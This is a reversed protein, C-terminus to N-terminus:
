CESQFPFCKDLTLVGSFPSARPSGSFHIRCPSVKEILATNREILTGYKEFLQVFVLFYCGEGTDELESGHELAISRSGRAVREWGDGVGAYELRELELEHDQQQQLLMALERDAEGADAEEGLTRDYDAQAATVAAETDMEMQLRWALAADENADPNGASNSDSYFHSNLLMAPAPAPAPAPEEAAAQRRTASTAADESEDANLLAVAGRVIDIWQWLIPNGDAAAWAAAMDQEISPLHIFPLLLGSFKTSPPGAATAPYDFPLQLELVLQMSGAGDVRVTSEYQVVSAAPVCM